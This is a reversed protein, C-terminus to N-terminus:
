METAIPFSEAVVVVVYKDLLVNRLFCIIMIENERACKTNARIPRVNLLRLCWCYLWTLDIEIVVM